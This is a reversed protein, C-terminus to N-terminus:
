TRELEAMRREVAALRAELATVRAALAGDTQAAEAAPPAAHRAGPAAAATAAEAPEGRRAAVLADHRELVEEATRPGAPAAGPAEIGWTLRERWRESRSGPSPPLRKALSRSELSALAQNLEFLTPLDHMRAARARLEGPAQPGRLLLEALVALEAAGCELRAGALHRFREARAGHVREALGKGLLGQMGLLIEAESWEVMPERNSKQNAGSRLANLTLPYLDPTTAEKEILVGLLRAEYEDLRLLTM